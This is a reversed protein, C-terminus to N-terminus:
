FLYVDEEENAPSPSKMDEFRGSKDDECSCVLPCRMVDGCEDDECSGPLSCRLVNGCKEDECSGPLHAGTQAIRVRAVLAPEMPRLGCKVQEIKAMLAKPPSKCAMMVHWLKDFFESDGEIQFGIENDDEDNLFSRLLNIFLYSHLDGLFLFPHEEEECQM